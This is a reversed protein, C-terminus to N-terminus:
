NRIETQLDNGWTTLVGSVVAQAEAKQVEKKGVYRDIVREHVFPAAAIALRDRRTQDATPDNIVGLMYELPTMQPKGDPSPPMGVPEGAPVLVTAPSKNLKSGASRPRGGGPKYGGKPM